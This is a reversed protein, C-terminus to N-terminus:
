GLQQIIKVTRKKFDASHKDLQDHLCIKVENKLEPYKKTLAFLVVIARSKITMTTDPSHIWQFLLDIALAEQEAPVGSIKWFTAFSSLYKSQANSCIEFLKPLANFLTTPHLMGVDSLLWLFRSAIKPEYSVFRSLDILDMKEDVIRNAWAKRQQGNSTPLLTELETYFEAHISSPTM